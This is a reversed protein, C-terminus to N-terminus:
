LCNGLIKATFVSGSATSFGANLQVFNGAQYIVNSANPITNTGSSTVSTAAKQNSTITGTPTLSSACPSLYEYAGLDINSVRNAGTIDVTPAGTFTGIGICQSSFQLGLGDDSTRWINDAGILNSANVFNPNQGFLNNNTALNPCNNFGPTTCQYNNASFSNQLVTYSINLTGDTTFNPGVFDAFISTSSGGGLNGWFITNKVTTSGKFAAGAGNSNGSSNGYFTSNTINTSSNVTNALGGGGGPATNNAILCNIIISGSAQDYIGGGQSISNTSNNYVVARNITPFSSQNYIAGGGSGGYNSLFLADSIIPSSSNNNMAGGYGATNNSTFNVNTFSATTNSSNYVAAGGGNATNSTFNTNSITPASSADNNMGGGVISANNNTIILNSLIVASSNTYIGGGRTKFITKTEITLCCAASSNANGATITFGDLITTNQDSVSVVVHYCNDTNVGVTGIDGSLTSTNGAVRQNIATETGAFGGYMAVGNILLFTKDRLDTGSSPDKSPFYTGSAVWIQDGLVAVDLASQLNTFANPWSTGNNAGVANAKVYRVTSYAYQSILVLFLIKTKM